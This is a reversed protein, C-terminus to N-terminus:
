PINTVWETLSDYEGDPLPSGGPPMNNGVQNSNIIRKILLSDEPQGPIVLNADIWDQNSKFNAWQVHRHCNMCRSQMVLYAPRFNPDSENLVIPGYLDRDGSNSNYDQCGILIFLLLVLKM